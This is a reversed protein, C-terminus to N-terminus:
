EVHTDSLVDEGLLFPGGQYTIRSIATTISSEDHFGQFDFSMHPGKSATAVAIHAHDRSISFSRVLNKTFSLLKFFKEQTVKSSGDILIGIDAKASCVIAHYLFM